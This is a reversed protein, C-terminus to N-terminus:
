FRHVISRESSQFSSFEWRDLKSNKLDPQRAILNFIKKMVARRLLIYVWPDLIQNWSALRVGLFMLWTYHQVDYHGGSYAKTVFMMVFILIPSWCICSVVMIGVLQVVMEIDHSKARRNCQQKRIRARVLSVGSITNCVLSLFLSTLGLLSFLLAFILDSWATVEHVKIFCWTNPFQIDYKGFNLVPLLAILLASTWIAAVTLKTRTSTVIASHLLPRTVGVCREVAMVCGLFLPCLGFFVMCVGFLQCLVGTEDIAKWQMRVAYLRLVFAGPIVHGAFDTIVLSSAFLLFTAKSRRRFRAYSKVLIILAIINSMAGLTMSFTPVAVSVSPSVVAQTSPGMEQYGNPFAESINSSEPISYSSNFFTEPNALTMNQQHVTVMEGKCFLEM